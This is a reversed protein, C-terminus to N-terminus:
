ATPMRPRRSRKRGIRLEKLRKKCAPELRKTAATWAQPSFRAAHRLMFQWAEEPYAHGIERITWGLGKQVYHDDDELLSEVQGIMFDYPLFRKRKDAYEILAVVSQRREWPNRSRNWQQLTPMIWGPHDETVNAYIKSLDDSHEWCACGDIWARITTFEQKRLAVHQYTYLAQHMVEM